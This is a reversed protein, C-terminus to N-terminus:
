GNAKEIVQHIIKEWRDGYADWSYQEAKKRAARGMIEIQHPNDIFYQIADTLGKKDGPEIIFGEKGHEIIDPGATATTTIVPLGSAMAELIVLGFGEFYSPFIFVDNKQLLGPLENHPLKGVIEINNLLYNDKIAINIHNQIQGVISLFVKDPNVQQFADLLFPIGKRADVLGTFIFRIQRPIVFSEKLPFASIDVGYPNVTIKNASIGNEILSLKSFNSAVVIHTANELESQEVVLLENSKLELSNVWTPYEKAINSYAINKKCSHAISVDLIYPINLTRCRDVLIWSSTDFGIVANAPKLISDTILQQFEKNRSFIIEESNSNSKLKRSYKWELFPFIFIKSSPVRAIVRNFIKRYIDPFFFRITRSIYSDASLTFSTIFKDLSKKQYLQKALQQAYQTGPHALLVKLM